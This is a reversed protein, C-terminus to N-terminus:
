HLITVVVAQLLEAKLFLFVEQFNSVKKFHNFIHKLCLYSSYCIYFKKMINFGMLDNEDGANSMWQPRM